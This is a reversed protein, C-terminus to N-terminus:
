MEGRARRAASGQLLGLWLGVGLPSALLALAFAVRRRGPAVGERRARRDVVVAIPLTVATALLWGLAVEAGM